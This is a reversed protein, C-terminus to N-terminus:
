GRERHTATTERSEITRVLHPLRAGVARFLGAVNGQASSRLLLRKGDTEVETETLTHLDRVLDSWEAEVGAIEMRRELESRLLMALFGCFEHGRITEDTEHLLTRSDLRAGCARLTREARRLTEFREASEAPSRDADTQLVRVGDLRAEAEVTETDIEFADKGAQLYRRTGRTGVPSGAGHSGLATRLDDLIAERAAADKRARDPDRCLVYRRPPIPLGNEDVGAPLDVAKVCLAVSEPRARDPEITEFPAPDTLVRSRVEESDRPRVRLLFHWGRDAFTEIAAEGIADRDAVVSVSRLGFRRDIRDVARQLAHADAVSGPWSESCVPIGDGDLAIGVAKRECEPRGEESTGRRGSTSDGVDRVQPSATDFFAMDLSTFLDRRRDFLAEEIRDSRCRPGFPGDSEPEQEGALPEGLWRIARSLHQPALAGAAPARLDRLRRVSQRDSGSEILRHLVCAFVAREMDFGFSRGESEAAVVDACGTEKWLRGFLLAPGISRAKVELNRNRASGESIAVLRSSFRGASEILRDLKGNEALRDLRGLSAIVRQRPKGDIRRSEVIQLYTRGGTTKTRCFM